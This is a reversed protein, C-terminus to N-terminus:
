FKKKKSKRRKRSIRLLDWRKKKWRLFLEIIYLLFFLFLYEITIHRYHLKIDMEYFINRNKRENMKIKGIWLYHKTKWKIHIEEQSKTDQLKYHFDRKHAGDFKLIYWSVCVCSTSRVLPSSPLSFSVFYPLCAPMSCPVCTNYSLFLSMHIPSPYISECLEKLFTGGYKLGENKTNQRWGDVKTIFKLIPKM